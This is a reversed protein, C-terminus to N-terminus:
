LDFSSVILIHITLSVIAAWTRPPHEQKARLLLMNLRKEFCMSFCLENPHTVPFNKCKKKTRNESETQM